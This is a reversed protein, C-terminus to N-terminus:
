PRARAPARGRELRVPRGPHRGARGAAARRQRPAARGREGRAAQTAGFNPDFEGWAVIAQYEDSGTASVHFRLFDNKVNPDFKPGFHNMLDYLLPGVYTHQQPNPGAFFTVTITQMPIPLARLEAVSLLARHELKGLIFFSGTPVQWALATSFTLILMAAKAVALRRHFARPRETM